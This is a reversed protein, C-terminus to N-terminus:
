MEVKCYAKVIPYAYEKKFRQGFGCEEGNRTEEVELKFEFKNLAPWCVAPRAFDLFKSGSICLLAELKRVASRLTTNLHPQGNSDVHWVKKDFKPDGGCLTVLWPEVTQPIQQPPCKHYELLSNWQGKIAGTIAAASTRNPSFWYVLALFWAYHVANQYNLGRSEDKGKHTAIAVLALAALEAVQFPKFPNNDGSGFAAKADSLYAPPWRKPVELKEDKSEVDGNVKISVHFNPNLEWRGVRFSPKDFTCDLVVTNQDREHKMAERLQIILPKDIPQKDIFNRSFFTESVLTRLPIPEMRALELLAEGNTGNDDNRMLWPAKFENLKSPLALKKAASGGRGDTDLLPHTLIHSLRDQPRAYLNLVGSLMAGMTARGGAISAHIACAGDTALRAILHDLYAEVVESDHSTRVDEMGKTADSRVWWVALAKDGNPPTRGLVEADTAEREETPLQNKSKPIFHVVCKVQTSSACSAQPLYNELIEHVTGAIIKKHGTDWAGCTTVLHIQTPIFAQAPQQKRQENEARLLMCLTESVVGLSTGLTFVLAREPYTWPEGPSPAADPATAPAGNGTGADKSTKKAKSAM